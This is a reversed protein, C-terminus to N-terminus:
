HLVRSGFAGQPHTLPTTAWSITLETGQDPRSMVSLLAGVTEARERMMGLGYHGSFTQGTDFGQGDDCIHLEIFAEDQKLEM